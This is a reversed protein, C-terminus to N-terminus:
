LREGTIFCHICLQHVNSSPIHQGEIVAEGMMSMKLFSPNENFFQFSTLVKHRYSVAVSSLIEEKLESIPVLKIQDNQEKPVIQNM